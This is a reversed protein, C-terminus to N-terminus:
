PRANANNGVTKTKVIGDLVYRRGDDLAITVIKCHSRAAAFRQKRKVTLEALAEALIEPDHKRQFDSTLIDLLRVAGTDLLAALDLANRKSLSM